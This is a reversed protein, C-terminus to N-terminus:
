IIEDRIYTTDDETKTTPFRLSGNTTYDFFKTWLKRGKYKDSNELCEQYLKQRQQRECRPRVNCIVGEKVKGALNSLHNLIFYNIRYL